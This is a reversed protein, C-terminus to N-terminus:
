FLLRLVQRRLENEVVRLGGPNGKKKKAIPTPKARPAPASRKQPAARGGAFAHLDAMTGDFRDTDVAGGIGAVSGKDSDQWFRWRSWSGPMTPCATQWHAVWLTYRAFAPDADLEQWFGPATYIIPTRGLASEVRTLWALARQQLARSPVDDTTEIDLAPPLDGKVLGGQAQVARILIDAQAIPDEAPRFYQYAGRVVGVAKMGQYNREFEPDLFTSGDSVRAFGFGVGAARVAPWDIQGQHYSVDVGRVTSAGPCQKMAEETSGAEEEGRVRPHACATFTLLLLVGVSRASRKM